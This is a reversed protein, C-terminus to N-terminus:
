KDCEANLGSFSIGFRAIDKTVGKFVGTIIHYNQISCLLMYNHTAYSTYLSPTIKTHLPSPYYGFM